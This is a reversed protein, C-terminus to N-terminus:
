RDNPLGALFDRGEATIRWAAVEPSILKDIGRLLGKDALYTIEASLQFATLKRLGESRLFQLLLGETLGFREASACYRLISWRTQEIQLATM